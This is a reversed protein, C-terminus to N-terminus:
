GEFSESVEIIIKDVEQIAITASEIPIHPKLKTLQAARIEVSTDTEEKRTVYLATALRELENVGKKGLKNAVFVIANNHEGLTKSYNEQINKSRELSVLRPGCPWQPELSILEDARLATLEDRLEFSFPGHKYLIFDFKLPVGMLEQLFFTAKQVHTEGCWSGQDRMKDILRSLLAATQLREM